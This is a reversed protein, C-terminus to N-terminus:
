NTQYDITFVDNMSQGAANRYDHLHTKVVRHPDNIIIRRGPMRVKNGSFNYILVGDPELNRDTTHQITGDPFVEIYEGARQSFRQTFDVSNGRVVGAFQYDQGLGAVDMARVMAPAHMALCRSIVTFDQESYVKPDLYLMVRDRPTHFQNKRSYSLATDILVWSSRGYIDTDYPMGHPLFRDKPRIAPRNGVTLQTYLKHNQLAGPDITVLTIDDGQCTARYLLRDARNTCGPLLMALLLQLLTSQPRLMPLLTDNKPVPGMIRSNLTTM